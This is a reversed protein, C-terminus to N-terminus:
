RVTTMTLAIVVIIALGIVYNAVRPRAPNWLYYEYEGHAKTKASWTRSMAGGLAGGVLRRRFTDARAGTTTV